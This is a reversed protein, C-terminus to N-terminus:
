RLGVFIWRLGVLFGCCVWQLSLLFGLKHGRGDCGVIAEGWGEGDEAIQPVDPHFLSKLSLSFSIVNLSISIVSSFSFIIIIFLLLSFM